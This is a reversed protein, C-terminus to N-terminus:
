FNSNFCIDNNHNQQWLPKINNCEQNSNPNFKKCKFKKLRFSKKFRKLMEQSYIINGPAIIKHKKMPKNLLIVQM